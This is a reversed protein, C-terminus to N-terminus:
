AGLGPQPGGPGGTTGPSGPARIGAQGGLIAPRQVQLPDTESIGSAILARRGRTRAANQLARRRAEEIAANDQDFGPPKPVEATAAVVVSAVSAAAAIGAAIELGTPPHM